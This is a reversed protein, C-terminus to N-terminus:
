FGVGKKVLKNQKKYKELVSAVNAASVLGIGLNSFEIVDGSDQSLLLDLQENAKNLLTEDVIEKVDAGTIEPLISKLEAL